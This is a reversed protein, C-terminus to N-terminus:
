RSRRAAAAPASPPQADRGAGRRARGALSVAARRLRRAGDRRSVRMTRRVAPSLRTWADVTHAEIMLLVAIGRAWDVYARRHSSTMRPRHVRHGAADLALGLLLKEHSLAIARAVADAPVDGEVTVQLHM